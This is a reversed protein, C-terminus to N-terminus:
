GLMRGQFFFVRFMQGPNSKTNKPSNLFQTDFLKLVDCHSNRANAISDVFNPNPRYFTPTLM